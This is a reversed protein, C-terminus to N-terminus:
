GIFEHLLSEPPVLGPDIPEFRDLAAVLQLLEGRRQNEGPVAEMIPKAYCAMVPAEYALATDFKIHATDKYPSIYLKEGRRVNAWMDLTGGVDTGRFNYDRVARRTLRLWTRKFMVRGDEGKVDSRASVYLRTADPHRSTFEGRTLKAFHEDLLKLDMMEPSEYDIAGGPTRPAGELDPRLFYDDMSVAHTRVGRRELEQSLKEATTTKGSGSPGSLLVVPSKSMNECIKEAARAIKDQYGQDCEEMFGVPDRRVAANIDSLQYAM